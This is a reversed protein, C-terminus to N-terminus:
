VGEWLGTIHEGCAPQKLTRIGGSVLRRSRPMVGAKLSTYIDSPHMIGYAVDLALISFGRGARRPYLPRPLRYDCLGTLAANTYSRPTSVSDFKTCSRLSGTSASGGGYLLTTTGTKNHNSQSWVAHHPEQLNHWLWGCSCCAYMGESLSKGRGKRDRPNWCASM